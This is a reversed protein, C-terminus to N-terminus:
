GLTGFVLKVCCGTQSIWLAALSLKNVFKTLPVRPSTYNNVRNLRIDPKSVPHRPPLDFQGGGEIKKNHYLDKTYTIGKQFVRPSKKLLSCFIAFRCFDLYKNRFRTILYIHVFKNKSFGKVWCIWIHLYM